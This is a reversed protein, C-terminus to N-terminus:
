AEVARMAARRCFPCHSETVYGHECEQGEPAAQRPQDAVWQRIEAPAVFPKRKACAIAGAKAEALELDGLLDHWADPTYEDFHQQPCYAAVLRCLIVSEVHNM